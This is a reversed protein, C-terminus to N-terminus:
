KSEVCLKIIYVITVSVWSRPKEISRSILTRKESIDRHKDRIM